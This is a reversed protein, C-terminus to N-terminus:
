DKFRNFLLGLSLLKINVVSALILIYHQFKFWIMTLTLFVNCIILLNKIENTLNMDTDCLMKILSFAYRFSVIPAFRVATASKKRSLKLHERLQASTGDFRAEVPHQLTFVGITPEVLFCSGVRMLYFLKFTLVNPKWSYVFECVHMRYEENCYFHEQMFLNDLQWESTIESYFTYIENSIM